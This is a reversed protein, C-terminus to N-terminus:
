GQHKDASGEMLTSLQAIIRDTSGRHKDIVARASKTLSQRRQDSVLIARLTDALKSQSVCEIVSVARLESALPEFNSMDPGCVVPADVLIAEVPNQGGRGLFSKGIVVVDALATWDGLEGTSDVLLVAAKPKEPARFRSRLVVEFGATELESVVAQRREVHRPLLVALAGPVEGVAEAILREEGHHTSAALVIPRGCGFSDLMDKFEARKIPM